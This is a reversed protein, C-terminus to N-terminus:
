PQFAPFIKQIFSADEWTAQEVPLNQWKILWQAVPISISGQVRPILKRQLIAEPAILITGDPNLLPLHPTPIAKAGLHKKLHSVHFTPHLKCGEPLLLKYSTNGIKELVRFPGYYKSHLKLCHHISLSTHRYPQIKLYVMDGVELQREKRNKDAHLKMRDQAKQLNAKIQQAIATTSSNPTLDPNVEEAPLLL